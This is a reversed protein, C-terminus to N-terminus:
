VVKSFIITMKLIRKTAKTVAFREDIRHGTLWVIKNNSEMVWVQEKEHLPVKADTLFKSVKKKKKKMGFPYFYDGQKWKRLMLPFDLKDMDVMAENNNATFRINDSNDLLSLQLKFDNTDIESREGPILDSATILIHNSEETRLRTIILHNRNRIVRHTDSQIYRGTEADTLQIAMPLQHTNFGFPLLLEYLITSLPQCQKLKLVPIYIDNGRYESLMKRYREISQNYLTEAESLRQINEGLTRKINPFVQEINPLINNRVQNRIYDNKANSADERWIIGNTTAYEYITEKSFGLLPRFLNGRMSRIGHLGSIGTGKFFNILMTEVSDGAHHATVIFDFGHEKCVENFWNYRLQRATNQINDSKDISFDKKFFTINNQNCWKAVCAEDANSDEGRLHYNCHAVAFSFGSRLFLHALVMSDAGGSVTLLFHKGAIGASQVTDQFRQFM